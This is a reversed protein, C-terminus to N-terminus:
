SGMLSALTVVAGAGVPARARAQVLLPKGSLSAAAGSPSVAHEVSVFPYIHSIRATPAPRASSANISCVRCSIATRAWAAVADSAALTASARLLRPQRAHAECPLEVSPTGLSNRLAIMASGFFAIPWRLRAGNKRPPLRPIGASPGRRGAEMVPYSGLRPSHPGGAAEKLSRGYNGKIQKPWLKITM